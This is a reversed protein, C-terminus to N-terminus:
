RQRRRRLIRDAESKLQRRTRDAHQTIRSLSREILRFRSQVTLSSGSFSANCAAIFRGLTGDVEGEVIGTLTTVAGRLDSKEQASLFALDERTM